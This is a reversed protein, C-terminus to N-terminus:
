APPALQVAPERQGRVSARDEAVSAGSVLTEQVIRLKEEAPRLRRPATKRGLTDTAVPSAQGITHTDM